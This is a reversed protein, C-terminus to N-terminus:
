SVAGFLDFMFHLRPTVGRNVVGHPKTTDVLYAAGVLMHYETDDAVFVATGAALPVHIRSFWGNPQEDRHVVIEHGPMVVSLMLNRATLDYGLDHRVDDVIPKVIEAFGRWTPDNVMAPRMHGDVPTQQPWEEYPLGLAWSIVPALRAPEFMGYYEVTKRRM